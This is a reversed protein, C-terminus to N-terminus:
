DRPSPGAFYFLFLNVYYYEIRSGIFFPRSDPRDPENPIKTM